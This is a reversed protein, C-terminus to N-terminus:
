GPWKGLGGGGVEFVRAAKLVGREDWKRGIIQMGVPLMRGEEGEVSGWGCPVSLAPHGTINFPCTNNSAGVALKIKDMVSSGGESEPRLDPHRPAVSPATPTILVDFEELAKDYAARLQLVHRYAKDQVEPGYKDSLFTQCFLVNIVAPNYHTLLDYMEQDPPWRPQLHPLSHALLDPARSALALDALLPRTAATWIAPGLTHFPISVESVSAGAATFHTTAASRVTSAVESVMGPFAFSETLLGIKMGNGLQTPPSSQTFHSLDLLYDQVKDRLPSEPTMRPDLGDYGSLVTLMNAIDDLNRAMPGCHDYIPHLSAIGTYPILGHTPKFGYIGTYSAPLRISGGQDGGMAIDVDDGANELGPVGAQRTAGLSLLCASGSSSGGVNHNHLWPNHVPGSASSYSLPTLSYNECTSTGTITAGAELIRAVVVADIPSIPYKGDKSVLQPFTGITTPFGAVSMNDKIAVTRGKLLESTPKEAMLKTRHSWGNLSNQEAKWYQREGGVTSVAKLRPDIYEPLADVSAITVDASQLLLLYAAEDSKSRISINNKAAVNQLVTKNV